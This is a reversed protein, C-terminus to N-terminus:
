YDRGVGTIDMEIQKDNHNISGWGYNIGMAVKVGPISQIEALDDSTLNPEEMYMINGDEDTFPDYYLEIFNEDMGFMDQTMQDKAGTGLAVIIIVACVGIIIGLMTLISRIKHNWISSLAIKFSEVINM